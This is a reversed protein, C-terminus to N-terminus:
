NINKKSVNLESAINNARKLISIFDRMLKVKHSDTKWYSSIILLIFNFVLIGLTTFAKIDDFSFNQTKLSNIFDSGYVFELLGILCIILFISFWYRNVKQIEILSYIEEIFINCANKSVKNGINLAINTDEKIKYQKIASAYYSYKNSDIFKLTQFIPKVLFNPILFLIFLIQSVIVAYLLNQIIILLANHTINFKIIYFVLLLLIALLSLFVVFLISTIKYKIWLNKIFKIINNLSIKQFVFQNSTKLNIYQDLEKRLYLLDQQLLHQLRLSM